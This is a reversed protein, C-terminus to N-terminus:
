NFLTPENVIEGSAVKQDRNRLANMDLLAQVQERTEALQEELVEIRVALEKDATEWAPVFARIVDVTTGNGFSVSFRGPDPPNVSVCLDTANTIDVTGGRYANDPNFYCRGIATGPEFQHNHTNM